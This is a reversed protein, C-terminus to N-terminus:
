EHLSEEVMRGRVEIIRRTVNDVADREFQNGGRYLRTLERGIRRFDQRTPHCLAVAEAHLEDIREGITKTANM